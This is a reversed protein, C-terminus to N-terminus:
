EAYQNLHVTKVIGDGGVANGSQHLGWVGGEDEEEDRDRPRKRGGGEVTAAYANPSHNHPHRHHHHHINRNNNNDDVASEVVHGMEIDDRKGAWAGANAIREESESRIYGAHDFDKTTSKNM